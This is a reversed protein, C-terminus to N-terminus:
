FWCCFVSRLTWVSTFEAWPRYAQLLIRFRPVAETEAQPAELEQRHGPSLSKTSNKLQKM